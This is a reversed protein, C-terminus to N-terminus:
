ESLKPEGGGKVVFRLLGHAASHRLTFWIWLYIRWRLPLDFDLFLRKFYFLLPSRGPALPAEVATDSPTTDAPQGNLARLLRNAATARATSLCIFISDDQFRGRQKYTDDYAAKGTRYHLHEFVVDNLYIFRDFGQHQLRKFIDFLHVDIFAGAYAAPYPDVLLECTKRSLIPFTALGGKKLLDNCYGLYIRDSFREDMARLATDWGVTRMVMDDNVLVIIQGRSARFCTTNYAGMSQKPGIIRHTYLARGDLHHSGTDDDDVYLIVEVAHLAEATKVVSELFRKALEPRGRTPLLLSIQVVEVTAKKKGPMSTHTAVSLGADM